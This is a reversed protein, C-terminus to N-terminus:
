DLQKEIEALMAKWAEFLDPQEIMEGDGDCLVDFGIDLTHDELEKALTRIVAKAQSIWQERYPSTSDEWPVFEDPRYAPAINRRIADACKDLTTLERM